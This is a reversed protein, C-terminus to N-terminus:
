SFSLLIGALLFVCIGWSAYHALREVISYAKM